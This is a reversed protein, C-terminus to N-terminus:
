ASCASLSCCPLLPLPCCFAPCPQIDNTIVRPYLRPHVTEPKCLWAHVVPRAGAGVVEEKQGESAKACGAIAEALRTLLQHVTIGAHSLCGIHLIKRVVADVPRAKIVERLDKLRVRLPPPPLGMAVVCCCSPSSAYLPVAM